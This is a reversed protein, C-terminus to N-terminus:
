RHQWELNEAKINKVWISHNYPVYMDKFKNFRSLAYHSEAVSYKKKLCDLAIKDSIKARNAIIRATVSTTFGILDYDTETHEFLSVFKDLMDQDSFKEVTNWFESVKHCNKYYINIYDHMREFDQVVKQNYKNNDTESDLWHYIQRFTMHLTNADLADLFGATLGMSVCNGQAPKPLWGGTFKFFKVDAPDAGNVGALEQAAQEQTLFSDNYVYGTGNHHEFPVNWMWGATGVTATSWFDSHQKKNRIPLFAANNVPVKSYSFKDTLKSILVRSFGTCDIYVDGSIDTDNVRVRQIGAADTKVDTVTGYITEIKESFEDFVFKSTQIADIHAATTSFFSDEQENYPIFGQDIRDDLRGLYEGKTLGYLFMITETNFGDISWGGRHPKDNWDVFKVGYKPWVYDSRKFFKDTIGMDNCVKIFIPTTSEGVGIIPIDASRINVIQYDPRKSKILGCAFAGTTGGGVVIIRKM